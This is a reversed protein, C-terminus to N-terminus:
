PSVLVQRRGGSVGHVYDGNVDILVRLMKGADERPEEELLFKQIECCGMKEKPIFDWKDSHRPPGGRGGSRRRALPGGVGALVQSEATAKHNARPDPQM